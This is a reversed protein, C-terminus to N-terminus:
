IYNLLIIPDELGDFRYEDGSSMVKNRLNNYDIDRNAREM